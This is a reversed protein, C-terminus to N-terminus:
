ENKQTHLILQNDPKAEDTTTKEINSVKLFKEQLILQNDSPKKFKPQNDPKWLIPQNNSPNKINTSWQFKKQLIKQNDSPNQLIPQNTFDRHM